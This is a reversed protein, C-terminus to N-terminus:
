RKPGIFVSERKSQYLKGQGDKGEVNFVIPQSKETLNKRPVKVFITVATVTGHAAVIEKDAGIMTLGKFDDDNASISVKMDENMKNLVKLTYHNQITGDSQVVFLPQRAHLVKLELSEMGSLGTVVGIISILLIATYVWVRPRKHLPKEEKGMIGDWSAYKILGIPKNIKEMVADCADICLGCMICGEQQGGRIDVGTPCVAVCQNCDVCDGQDESAPKGKLLRGRKEGRPVDYSPVISTDDIMVAQIRAYPCLWFCTQERLFGALFMTGGIFLFVTIYATSSANLTFLDVWLDYADTFWAVFSIGTLISILLWVSYKKARIMIKPMDWKAKDLKRRKAPSGEFKDEIWTFVDTWVTQFCFFGCWIRGALATVVALLIAFFLLVFSLMWLDQPLLTLNFIHFQREPIDLLIAQRDGLRLYPGIFFVIWVLNSLWKLNRFKGGMRKAHIKVDGVNITHENAEAYLEEISQEHIQKEAM